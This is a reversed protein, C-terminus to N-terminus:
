TKQNIYDFISRRLNNILDSPNGLLQAHLLYAASRERM